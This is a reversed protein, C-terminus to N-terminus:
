GANDNRSSSFLEEASKKAGPPWVFLTKGARFRMEINELLAFARRKIRLVSKMSATAAKPSAGCANNTRQLERSISQLPPTLTGFTGEKKNLGGALEILLKITELTILHIRPPLLDPAPNSNKRRKDGRRRRVSDRASHSPSVIRIFRDDGGRAVFCGRDLSRTSHDVLYDVIAVRMLDMAIKCEVVPHGRRIGAAAQKTKACKFKLSIHHALAVISRPSKASPLKKAASEYLKRIAADRSCRVATPFWQFAIVGLCAAERDDFGDSIGFGPLTLRLRSANCAASPAFEPEPSVHHYAGKRLMEVANFNARMVPPVVQMNLTESLLSALHDLLARDPDLQLANWENDRFSALVLARSVCMRASAIRRRMSSEKVMRSVDGKEGSCEWLGKEADGDLVDCSEAGHLVVSSEDRGGRGLDAANWTNEMVQRETGGNERERLRKSGMEADDQRKYLRLHLFDARQVLSAVLLLGTVCLLALPAMPVKKVNSGANIENGKGKRGHNGKRGRTSPHAAGSRRM